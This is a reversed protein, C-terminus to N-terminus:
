NMFILYEPRFAPTHSVFRCSAANMQPSFGATNQRNTIVFIYKM